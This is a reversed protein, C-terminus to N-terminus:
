LNSAISKYQVNMQDFIRFVEQIWENDVLKAADEFDQLTATEVFKYSQEFPGIEFKIIIKFNSKFVSILLKEHPVTGILRM